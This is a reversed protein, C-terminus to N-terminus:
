LSIDALQYSATQTFAFDVSVEFSFGDTPKYGIYRVRRFGLVLLAQKIVSFDFLVWAFISSYVSIWCFEVFDDLILRFKRYLEDSQLSIYGFASWQV